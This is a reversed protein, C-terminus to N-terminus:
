AAPTAPTPQHQTMGPNRGLQFPAPDAAPQHQRRDAPRRWFSQGPHRRAREGPAPQLAMGAGRGPYDGVPLLRAPLARAARHGRRPGRRGTCLGFLLRYATLSPLAVGGVVVVSSALITGGVASALSSGSARSLSNLGNAAALESHPAGLAILAPMAAFAIGTGAGAMTTGAVIEWLHATLVIRIAFGAAVVLSGTCLTIKPGFRRSILASVPSLALQALGSPLLCLGGVVISAGFGYGSAVPAQVYAATGIFSAFLAFGVCLSAINTRLLAPKANAAIDVLPSAVRREILM